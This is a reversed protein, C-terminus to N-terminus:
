HKKRKGGQSKLVHSKSEEMIMKIDNLILNTVYEM